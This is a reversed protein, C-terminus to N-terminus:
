ALAPPAARALAREIAVPTRRWPPADAARRGNAPMSVSAAGNVAFGSTSESAAPVARNPQRNARSPFHRYAPGSRVALRFVVDAGVVPRWFENSM